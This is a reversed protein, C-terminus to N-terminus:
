TKVKFLNDKNMLLFEDKFDKDAFRHLPAAHPGIFARSLSGIAHEDLTGALLANLARCLNM